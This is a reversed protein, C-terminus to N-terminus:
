VATNTHLKVKMTTQIAVVRHQALVDHLHQDAHRRYERTETADSIVHVMRRVDETSGSDADNDGDPIYSRILCSAWSDCIPRTVSRTTSCKVLDSLNM